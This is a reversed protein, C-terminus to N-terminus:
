MLSDPRCEVWGGIFFVRMARCSSLHFPVAKVLTASCLFVEKVTDQLAGSRQWAARDSGTPETACDAPGARREQVSAALKFRHLASIVLTPGDIKEIYDEPVEFDQISFPNRLLRLLFQPQPAATGDVAVTMHEIINM